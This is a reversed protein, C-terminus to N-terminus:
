APVQEIVALIHQEPIIRIDEGHIKVETGGFKEFLVKMGPELGQIPIHVGDNSIRGPGVALVTGQEPRERFKDAIIILGENGTTEASDDQKIVVQDRLPQM